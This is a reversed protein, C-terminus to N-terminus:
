EGVLDVRAENEDNNGEGSGTTQDYVYDEINVKKVQNAIETVLNRIFRFMLLTEVNWRRSCHFM